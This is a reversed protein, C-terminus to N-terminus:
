LVGGVPALGYSRAWGLSAVTDPEPVYELGVYHEYGLDNLTKLVYSYNIEGTGPQHRGPNDAIQIHGIKDLLTTITEILNGEMKQMHYVDYQLALNPQNVAHMVRTAQASNSLFFGPIDLTNIPEILLTVNRSALQQAAYRLNEILCSEQAQESLSEDRKGVLCNVFPVNLADVYTLAQQVGDKFEDQRDPLVAIGREGAQWNGAPLNFLNQTLKHKDLKNKLEAADYEYPFMYEVHKFGASAAAAFRDLFDHEQFLFTLNASLKLM